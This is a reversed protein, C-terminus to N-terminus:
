SSIGEPEPKPIDSITPRATPPALFGNMVLTSTLALLPPPTFPLTKLHHLFLVKFYSLNVICIPDCTDNSPISTLLHSIHLPSVRGQGVHTMVEQVFVGTGEHTELWEFVLGMDDERVADELDRPCRGQCVAVLAVVVSAQVTANRKKKGPRRKRLKKGNKGLRVEPVAEVEAKLEQETM